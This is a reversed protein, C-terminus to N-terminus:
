KVCIFCNGSAFVRALSRLPSVAKLLRLAYTKWASPVVINDEDLFEIMDLSKTFGVRSFVRKLQWYTFQNFDIGGSKMIAEGQRWVRFRFRVRDPLWGYLPLSPYEGSRLSFRNTSYFYFAGGPRLARYINRLGKEYREVHEFVSTAFIVDYREDGLAYDEITGEHIVIDLGNDRALRRAHEAYLPNVELGDCRLGRLACMVPFWGTGVGVELMETQTKIPHFKSVRMLGNFEREHAELPITAAAHLYERSKALADSGTQDSTMPDDALIARAVSAFRV